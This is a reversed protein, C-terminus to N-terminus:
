ESLCIWSQHGEHSARLQSWAFSFFLFLFTSAKGGNLTTPAAPMLMEVTLGGDDIKSERESGWLLAKESKGHEKM